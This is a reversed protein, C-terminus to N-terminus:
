GREDIIIDNRVGEKDGPLASFSNPLNEQEVETSHLVLHESM